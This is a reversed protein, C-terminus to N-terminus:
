PYRRTRHHYGNRPNRHHTTMMGHELNWEIFLVTAIGLVFV